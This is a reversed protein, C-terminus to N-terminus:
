GWNQFPQVISPNPPNISGWRRELSFCCFRGGQDKSVDLQEKMDQSGSSKRSEECHGDKLYLLVLSTQRKSPGARMGEPVSQVHHQNSCQCHNSYQCEWITKMGQTGPFQETRPWHGALMSLICNKSGNGLHPFIEQNGQSLFLCDVWLLTTYMGSHGRRTGMFLSTRFLLSLSDTDQTAAMDVERAVAQKQHVAAGGLFHM